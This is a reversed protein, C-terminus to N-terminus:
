KAENQPDSQLSVQWFKGFSELSKRIRAEEMRAKTTNAICFQNYSM